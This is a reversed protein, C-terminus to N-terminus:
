QDKEEHITEEKIPVWIVRGTWTQIEELRMLDFNACIGTQRNWKYADEESSFGRRHVILVDTIITRTFYYEFNM